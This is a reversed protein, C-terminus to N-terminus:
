VLGFDFALAQFHAYYTKKLLLFDNLRKKYCTSYETKYYKM